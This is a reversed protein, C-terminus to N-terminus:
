KTRAVGHLCESWWDYAPIGLRKISPTVDLMQAVKEELTLRSVLDNVRQELPLSPNQFPYEYKKVQAFCYAAFFFSIFLIFYRKKM